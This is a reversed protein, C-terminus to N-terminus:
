YTLRLKNFDYSVESTVSVTGYNNVMAGVGIIFLIILIEAFGGRSLTM